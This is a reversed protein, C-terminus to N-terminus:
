FRSDRCRSFRTAAARSVAGTSGQSWWRLSTDFKEYIRARKKTLMRLGPLDRTVDVRLIESTGIDELFISRYPGQRPAVRTM